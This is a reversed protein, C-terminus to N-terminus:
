ELHMTKLNLAVDRTLYVISFMLLLLALVFLIAVGTRHSVDLLTGAFLVILLAATCLGSLAAFFIARNLLRMRRLLSTMIDAPAAPSSARLVRFRDVAREFRNVLVHLFAAVAGLMFAPATAHSIAVDFHELFSASEPM